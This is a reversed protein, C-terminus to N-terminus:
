GNHRYINNNTIVLDMAIDHEESELSEFMQFQFAVGIKYSKSEALMRDYYGGGRGLRECDFDFAVGPVIMIEIEDPKAAVANEPELVGWQGNKLESSEPWESMFCIKENSDYIPVFIKKQNERCFKILANLEVEGNLALYIGINQANQFEETEIIQACIKASNEEIWDKTLNDRQTKINTRIEKKM